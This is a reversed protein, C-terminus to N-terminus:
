AEKGAMLMMMLGGLSMKGVLMGTKAAVLMSTLM